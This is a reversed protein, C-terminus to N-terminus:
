IAKNKRLENNKNPKNGSDLDGEECDIVHAFPDVTAHHHTIHLEQLLTAALAASPYRRLLRKMFDSVEVFTQM